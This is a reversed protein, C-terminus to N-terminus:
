LWIKATDMCLGHVRSVIAQRVMSQSPGRSSFSMQCIYFGSSDHTKPNSDRNGLLVRVGLESVGKVVHKIKWLHIFPYLDTRVHKEELTIDVSRWWSILVTNMERFSIEEAMPIAFSAVCQLKWSLGHFFIDEETLVSVQSVRGDSETSTLYCASAVYSLELQSGCITDRGITLM